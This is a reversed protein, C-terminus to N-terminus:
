CSDAGQGATHGHDGQACEGACDMAHSYVVHRPQQTHALIRDYVDTIAQRTDHRNCQSITDMVYQLSPPCSSSQVAFKMNLFILSLQQQLAHYADLLEHLRILWCM